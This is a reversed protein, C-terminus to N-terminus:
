EAGIKSIDSSIVRANSILHTNASIEPSIQQETPTGCDYGRNLSGHSYAPNPHRFGGVSELIWIGSDLPAEGIIYLIGRIDSLDNWARQRVPTQTFRWFETSLIGTGPCRRAAYAGVSAAHCGHCLVVPQVRLARVSGCRAKTHGLWRMGPDYRRVTYLQTSPM